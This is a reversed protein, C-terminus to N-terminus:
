FYYEQNYIPVTNGSRLVALFECMLDYAMSLFSVNSYLALHKGFLYYTLLTIMAQSKSQLRLQQEITM